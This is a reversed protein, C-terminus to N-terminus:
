KKPEEVYPDVYDAFAANNVTIETTHNAYQIAADVLRLARAHTDYAHTVQTMTIKPVQAKIEATIEGTSQHQMAKIEHIFEYTDAQKVQRLQDVKQQLEKRRLLAEALTVKM